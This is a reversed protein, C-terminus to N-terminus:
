QRLHKPRWDDFNLRGMLGENVEEATMYGSVKRGDKLFISPTGYVKLARAAKNAEDMVPFDCSRAKFKGQLMATDLLFKQQEESACWISELVPVSSRSLPFPVYHVTIGNDLYDSINEHLKRCYPCFVDTFVTVAYKENEAKYTIILEPDLNTLVELNPSNKIEQYVVKDEASSFSFAYLFSLCLIMIRIM